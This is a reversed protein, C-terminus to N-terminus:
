GGRALSGNSKGDCSLCAHKELRSRGQQTYTILKAHWYTATSLLLFLLFSGTLSSLKNNM